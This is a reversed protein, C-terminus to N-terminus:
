RADPQHKMVCQRLAGSLTKASQDIYSIQVFRQLLTLWVPSLALSLAIVAIIIKYSENDFVGNALATAAIIFSFEGIQSITLGTVFSCRWRDSPLFLRLLLISVVTKFLMTALLLSFILPAESMIVGFDLLMGISLFFIMLLVSQM